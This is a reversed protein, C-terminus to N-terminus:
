PQTCTARIRQCFPSKPHSALFARGASRSAEIRGASCLAFVRAAEREEALAARPFREGHADLIALARQGEGRELAAHAERLLALEASMPSVPTEVPAKPPSTELTANKQALADTAATGDPGEPVNTTAREPETKAPVAPALYPTQARPAVHATRAPQTPPTHVPEVSRPESGLPAGREEALSTRPGLPSASESKSAPTPSPAPTPILSPPAEIVIASTNTTSASARSVPTTPAPAVVRTDDLLANGGFGVASVVAVAAVVKLALAGTALTGGTTATLAGAAGATAGGGGIGAGMGAGVGAGVGPSASSSAIAAAAGKATGLAAGSAVIAVSLKARVRQRDAASPLDARRGAEFLANADHDPENM